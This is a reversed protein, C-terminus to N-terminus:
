IRLKDYEFPSFLNRYNTTLSPGEKPFALM